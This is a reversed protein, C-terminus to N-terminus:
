LCSLSTVAAMVVSVSIIYFENVDEDTLHVAPYCILLTKFTFPEHVTFTDDSCSFSFLFFTLWVQWVTPTARFIFCFLTSASFIPFFLLLLLCINSLKENAVPSRSPFFLCAWLSWTKKKKFLQITNLTCSKKIYLFVTTNAEVGGFFFLSCFFPVFEPSSLSFLLAFYLVSLTFKCPPPHSCYSSSHTISSLSGRRVGSRCNEVKQLQM